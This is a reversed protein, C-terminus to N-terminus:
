LGSQEKMLRYTEELMSCTGRLLKVFLVDDEQNEYDFPGEEGKGEGDREEEEGRVVDVVELGLWAWLGGGVSRALRGQRM